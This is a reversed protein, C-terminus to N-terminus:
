CSRSHALQFEDIMLNTDENLSCLRRTEHADRSEGHDIPAGVRAGLASLQQVWAPVATQFQV